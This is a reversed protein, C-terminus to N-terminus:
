EKVVKQGNVIYISQSQMKRIRQGTLNYIDQETTGLSLNDEIGTADNLIMRRAEAGEPLEAYCKGPPLVFPASGVKHFMAGSGQNQNQMVYSTQETLEKQVITGVLCGHKVTGDEPYQSADVDGSITEDFGTESYLIYPTYAELKSDAKSLLLEEETHKDCTYARLSGDAPLDYDFPLICTGFKNNASVKLNLTSTTGAEVSTSTYTAPIHKEQGQILGEEKILKILKASVEIGADGPKLYPSAKVYFKFLDGSTKTFEGNQTSVVIVKLNRSTVMNRTLTHTYAKVEELEGDENEEEVTEYPYLSPKIMSVRPLGSSLYVVDLGEPLILDVEFATYTTESNGQLSVTLSYENSSGPEVTLESLIIKDTTEVDAKATTVALLIAFLLLVQKM